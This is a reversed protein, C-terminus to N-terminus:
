QLMVKMSQMIHRVQQQSAGLQPTAYTVEFLHRANAYYFQLLYRKAGISCVPRPDGNVVVMFATQWESGVHRCDAAVADSTPAAIATATNGYQVGEGQVLNVPEASKYFDFTYQYAGNSLTKQSFVHSSQVLAYIVCMIVFVLVAFAGALVARRRQSVYGTLGLANASVGVPM